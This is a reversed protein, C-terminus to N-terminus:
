AGHCKKYKKGSGCPCPDNRGVKQGAMVQKPGTSDDGGFQLAALEQDKKRQINRTFDEMTSKAASRQEESPEAAAGSRRDGGNIVPRGNGDEPEEEDEPYPLIPGANTSVQLFFLYRVTEDEIRDMMATFLEYSEKKYEVLPDKQGHGRLGIGQKLEDMSLLHDKWQNDIVQLMVIRETQRMVDAGVLDEKEQYKQQLREFIRDNLELKTLQSLEALDVKVGFSSLIDNRLTTMDWTDPHKDEPCRVDVFQEIIGRVMDMVREKQDVGELLQRRMGYVAQRQKNNVDDYELLHKRAEFNQVEVAEQAKAIRKTILKSEIPVDEEMGLRLMLNQMREGGFIRLLDDQLSLFFRSSGPDGQRGARGRLQNDIRRSEHRETAVIHLGGMATVEDHEVDTQAKFRTYIEDWKDRRVRYFQDHHSFYYFHEDAVYQIEDESLREAVKLKLCEDKTMFEANGGLLIDTGRGAMNTSVTVANKRGAQAVISAEREHNKANLVEHKVGMRKLIGSLKESKEVSITGVLVPQGKANFEKIEKAANRFKEEETRYVVDPNEIRILPRNTPIVTVDLNYIKQFEAAETEATGTMGALKKYMRFYNQFTITALTQNERQIKVGEKAEVAQHLGDSWRRGPMLRGTFEDVIVVEPGEDGDKVVYDRDLQYLVHARLAQQVHHNFEINNADYLNGLGLLKEVKLVGEETLAAAKHKEDITYDGTTYKEGPERGEIVEGRVLKPIIRNIKYYKDTSEESPGSIILPTRAEDVLISDVEDVIAYHHVRQVCDEIRFKMNDRLYDFGFENNTGYTIDANYADKREEDDLDHVIVGVRLGLAKYLRGMWESDRKALYDNVTVVHVGKGELANLYSPLTAVLTKGEGTKMESIKGNHLVMGGILQVDFHRMNLVRLGAERVVAFAEILLDDLSAGQDLKEKFEITKAALDIDSLARMAPELANIAAVTPRLGKIERENKTGFIKALIADVIM